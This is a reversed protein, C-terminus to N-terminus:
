VGSHRGKVNMDNDYRQGRVDQTPINGTRLEVSTSETLAQGTTIDLNLSVDLSINM